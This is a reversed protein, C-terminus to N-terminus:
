LGFTGPYYSDLERSKNDYWPRPVSSFPVPDNRQGQLRGTFNVPAVAQKGLPQGSHGDLPTLPVSLFM